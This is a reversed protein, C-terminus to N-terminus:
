GAVWVSAAYLDLPKHFLGLLPIAVIFIFLGPCVHSLLPLIVPIPLQNCTLLSLIFSSKELRPDPYMASGTIFGLFALAPRAASFLHCIHKLCTLDSKLM